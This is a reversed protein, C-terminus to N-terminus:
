TPGTVGFMPEGNEGYAEGGALNLAWTSAKAPTLMERRPM